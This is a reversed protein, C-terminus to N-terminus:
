PAGRTANAQPPLVTRLQKAMFAAVQARGARGLNKGFHRAFHELCHAIADLRGAFCTAVRGVAHPDTREVRQGNGRHRAHDDVQLHTLRIQLGLRHQAGVEVQNAFQLPALDVRRQGCHGFVSGSMSDM